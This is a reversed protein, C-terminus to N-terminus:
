IAPRLKAKVTLGLRMKIPGLLYNPINNQTPKPVLTRSIVNSM